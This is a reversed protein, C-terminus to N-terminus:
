NTISSINMTNVNPAQNNIKERHVKYSVIPYIRILTTVSIGDLDVTVECSISIGTEVRVLLNFHYTKLRKSDDKVFSVRFDHKVDERKGM